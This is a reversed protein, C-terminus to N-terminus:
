AGVGHLWMNITLNVQGGLATTRNGTMTARGQANAYVGTGGIISLTGTFTTISTSSSYSGHGQVQMSLVGTPTTLTWFGWCPGSGNVYQVSALWEVSSAQGNITTPGTLDNWGYTGTLGPGTTHLTKGQSTLSLTFASHVVPSGRASASGAQLNLEFIGLALLGVTAAIMWRIMRMGFMQGQRAM